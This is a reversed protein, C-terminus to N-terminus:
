QQQEPSKSNGYLQVITGLQAYVSILSGLLDTSAAEVDRQANEYEFTSIDGSEYEVSAQALAENLTELNRNSVEASLEVSALADRANREDIGLTIRAISLERDIAAIEARMERIEDFHFSDDSLQLSFTAAASGSISDFVGSLSGSVSLSIGPEIAWTSEIQKELSYKQIRLSEVAQSTIAGSVSLGSYSERASTIFDHLQEVTIKFELVSEPIAGTGCLMYLSKEANARNQIAAIHGLSAAALSDAANRLDDASIYGAKFQSEADDYEVKKHAVTREADSIHRGTAAYELLAIRSQWRLQARKYRMSVRLVAMQEEMAIDASLGAFPTYTLSLSASGANSAQINLGFQDLVPISISASASLSHPDDTAAPNYSYGGSVTVSSDSLLVVKAYQEQLDNLQERMASLDPNNGLVLAEFTAIPGGTGDAAALSATVLMSVVIAIVGGMGSSKMRHTVYDRM